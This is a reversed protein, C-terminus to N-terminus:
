DSLTNLTVGHGVFVVRQGTLYHPLEIPRNIKYVTNVTLSGIVNQYLHHARAAQRM